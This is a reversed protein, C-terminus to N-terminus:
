APQALLSRNTPIDEIGAEDRTRYYDLAAQRRDPHRLHSRHEVTTTTIHRPELRDTKANGWLKRGDPTQYTYHNTVCRLGRIARFFMPFTQYAYTGMPHGPEILTVTAVDFPTSALQGHLDTPANTVHEDADIVMYWDTLTTAQEALHFLHNRKEIENGQWGGTHIDTPFTAADRITQWQDPHSRPPGGYLQYPGDLAILHDVPIQTLSHTCRTLDDPHEDYWSLLAVIRTM